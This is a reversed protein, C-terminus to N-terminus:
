HQSLWPLDEAGLNQYNPVQTTVNNLTPQTSLIRPIMLTTAPVLQTHWNQTILDWRGPHHGGSQRGVIWAPDNTVGGPPPPVPPPLTIIDGPVGGMSSGAPNVGGSRVWILRRRPVFMEVQAFAQSDVALPNRFLSPMFDDLKPQYVVGVFMFDREIYENMSRPPEDAFRIQMPLNHDPYEVELLKRLQGCTFIRWLNGFQSMKGYQDFVSMTENNWDALYRRALTRRQNRANSQYRPLTPVMDLVPDVAPITHRDMESPGGAEDGSTRWLVAQLTVPRPWSAGHRRAVENAAAQAQLPGLAVVTRQFQPIQEQALITELVPLMLESSAAAWASFTSVLQREHPVKEQIALGLDAFPSYPATAMFPGIREWNDLIETTLSAANGDRAERMYATLAFVDALLHNTFALTNMNRTLSLGGSSTAADAANQLRVKQDAQRSSNMVLGLVMVLLLLAFVSALSISGSQDGHLGCLVEGRRRLWRPPKM